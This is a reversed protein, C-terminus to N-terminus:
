LSISGRRIIEVGTATPRIITSPLVNVIRGGDVYFDVRDGFYTVAEDITTAPSEGPINASSTILPGTAELLERLQPDDVVRMALTGVGQHLYTFGEVSLVASVPNPWWKSVKDIESQSVGLERLQNTSAAILTGPKRERDKVAYMRVVAVRNHAAAVVGYVTDTPMIGIGSQCLLDIATQIDVLKM